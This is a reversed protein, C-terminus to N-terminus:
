RSVPSGSSKNEADSARDSENTPPSGLRFAMGKDTNGTSYFVGPIILTLGADGNAGQVRLGALQCYGIASQLIQLAEEASVQM